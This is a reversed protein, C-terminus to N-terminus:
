LGLNHAIRRPADLVRSLATVVPPTRPAHGDNLRAVFTVQELTPPGVALNRRVAGRGNLDGEAVLWSGAMAGTRGVGAGCHVFTLGGARTIRLFEDIQDRTPVQGDRVPLRVSQMGLSRVLAQDNEAQPEARLDVIVKVGSAALARYGEPTPAAGRWLKDDVAELNDVGRLPAVDLRPTTEQAIWSAGLIALNGAVVLGVLVGTGMLVKRSVARVRM